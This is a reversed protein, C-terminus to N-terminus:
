LVVCSRWQDSWDEEAFGFPLLQKSSFYATVAKQNQFASYPVRGAFM